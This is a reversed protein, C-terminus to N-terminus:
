LSKDMSFPYPAIPFGMGRFGCDQFRQLPPSPARLGGLKFLRTAPAPLECRSLQVSCTVPVPPSGPGLSLLPRAFGSRPFFGVCICYFHDKFVFSLPPPPLIPDRSRGPRPSTRGRRFIWFFNVVICSFSRRICVSPHVRFPVFVDLAIWVNSFSPSPFSL